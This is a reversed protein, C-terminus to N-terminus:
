GPVRHGLGEREVRRRDIGQRVCDRLNFSAAKFGLRSKLVECEILAREYFISSKLEADEALIAQLDTERQKARALGETRARREREAKREGEEAIRTREEVLVRIVELAGFQAAYDEISLVEGNVFRREELDVGRALVDRALEPCDYRAAAFLALSRGEADNLARQGDFLVCAPAERLLTSWLGETSRAPAAQTAAATPQTVLVHVVAGSLIAIACAAIVGLVLPSSPLKASSAGGSSSRPALEDLIKDIDSM